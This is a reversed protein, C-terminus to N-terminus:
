RDLEMVRSRSAALEKQAEALEKQMEHYARALERDSPALRYAELEGLIPAVAAEAEDARAEAQTLAAEAKKAAEVAERVKDAAPSRTSILAANDLQATQLAASTSTLEAQLSSVFTGAQLLQQQQMAAAAQMAAGHEAALEARLRTFRNHAVDVSLEYSGDDHVRAGFAALAAVLLAGQCRSGPDTGYFILERM